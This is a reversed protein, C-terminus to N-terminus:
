SSCLTSVTRIRRLMCHLFVLLLFMCQICICVDTADYGSTTSHALQTSAEATTTTPIAAAAAASSAKLTFSNLGYNGPGHDSLTPTNGHAYIFNAPETQM